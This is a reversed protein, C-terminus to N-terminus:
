AAEVIIGGRANKGTIVLGSRRLAAVYLSQIRLDRNLDRALRNITRPGHIRLYSIIEQSVSGEINVARRGRKDVREEENKRDALVALISQVYPHHEVHKTCYPKGEYTYTGCGDLQCYSTRKRSPGIRGVSKPTMM